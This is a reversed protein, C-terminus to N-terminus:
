SVSFTATEAMFIFCYIQGVNKFFCFYKAEEMMDRAAGLGLPTDTRTLDLRDHNGINQMLHDKSRLAGVGQHVQCQMSPSLQHETKEAVIHRNLNHPRSSSADNGRCHPQSNTKQCNHILSVSSPPAKESKAGDNSTPTPSRGEVRM